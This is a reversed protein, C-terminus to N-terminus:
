HALRANRGTGGPFAPHYGDRVRGSDVSTRRDPKAPTIFLTRLRASQPPLRQFLLFRRKPAASIGYASFNRLFFSCRSRGRSRGPGPTRCVRYGASGWALAFELELRGDSKKRLAHSSQRTLRTAFKAHLRALCAIFRVYQAEARQRETAM